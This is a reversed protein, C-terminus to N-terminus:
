RKARAAHTQCYPGAAQTPACCFLTLWDGAEEAGGLPWACQGAARNALTKPEAGPPPPWDMQPLAECRFQPERVLRITVRPARPRPGKAPSAVRGVLGLRHRKAIVASRSVGGLLLASEAATLGVAFHRRLQAIRDKTWGLPTANRHIRSHLPANM